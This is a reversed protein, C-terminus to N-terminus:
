LRKMLAHVSAASHFFLKLADGLAIEDGDNLPRAEDKSLKAGNVRTGNTSGADALSYGGDEDRQLWAHLRSIGPFRLQVDTNSGRGLRIRRPQDGEFEFVVLESDWQDKSEPTPKVIQVTAAAADTKGGLSGGDHLLFPLAFRGAFAEPAGDRHAAAFELLSCFRVQLPPM